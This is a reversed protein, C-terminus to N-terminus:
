MGVRKMFHAKKPGDPMKQVYEYLQALEAVAMEKGATHFDESTSMRQCSTSYIDM